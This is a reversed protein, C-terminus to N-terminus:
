AAHHVVIRLAVAIHLRGYGIILIHFLRSNPPSQFFNDNLTINQSKM